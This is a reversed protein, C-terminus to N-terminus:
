TWSTTSPGCARPSSPGSCGSPSPAVRLGFAYGLTFHPAGEPDEVKLAFPLPLAEAKLAAEPEVLAYGLAHLDRALGLLGLADPRNPTVELDLM